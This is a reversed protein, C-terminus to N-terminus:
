QRVEQVIIATWEGQDYNEITIDMKDMDFRVPVDFEFGALVQVGEAPPDDLTLLGTVHGLSWVSGGQETGDLYVRVTGAVPKTIVRRYAGAADGYWKVLQFTRAVGDGTGLVQPDAQHDVWDKFRFAFARGRRAQFFAVLVGIDREAVSPSFQRFAHALDWRHLGYRWNVNRREHGSTTRQVTTSHLPGGTVGYSINEPLRVDHFFPDSL